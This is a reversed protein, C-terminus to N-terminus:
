GGDTGGVIRACGDQAEITGSVVLYGHARAPGAVIETHAPTTIIVSHYYHREGTETELGWPTEALKPEFLLRYTPM